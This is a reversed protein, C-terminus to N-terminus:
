ALTLSGDANVTILMPDDFKYSKKRRYLDYQGPSLRVELVGASNSTDSLLTLNEGRRTIDVGCYPIPQGGSSRITLPIMFGQNSSSNGAFVSVLDGAEYTFIGPDKELTIQKSAGVYSSVYGLCKRLSSGSDTIMVQAGAYANDDSSGDTLTFVTQSTLADIDTSVFLNASDGSGGGSTATGTFETGGAGYQNPALVISVGPVAFTGDTGSSVGYSATDIVEGQDPLHVLGSTGGGVGFTATDVVESSQPGHYTGDTLSSAGFSVTDLVSSASPLVVNGTLNDTPGFTVGDLVESEAPFTGGGSSQTSNNTVAQSTFDAMSNPSSASDTVNGGSYAVTVTETSLIARDVCLTIATSASRYASLISLAGGTGSLSFGTVETAPLLPASGAETLTVVVTTGGSPVQASSFTPATIDPAAQASNNTVSQSGFDAMSNPVSDTVNGGSYAVSVIESDYVTRSTTLTIETNGTRSASSVTLPSVYDTALSFGTIGSAPLLPVTEAETFQMVVTTGASPVQASAFTPPTTDPSPQASNNTVAQAGFDAMSNWASDTVNGSSYSVTVTESDYVTRNTTLTIETNGTRAASAVSLASGYSTSLSFGTVGTPPLLPVSDAETFQVVVSDGATPIASSLYVPAVSDPFGVEPSGASSFSAPSNSNNYRATRWAESRVVNHIRASDYRGDFLLTGDPRGGFAIRGDPGLSGSASTDDIIQSNDKYASLQTADSDYEAWLMQWDLVTLSGGAVFTVDPSYTRLAGSRSQIECYFGDAKTTSWFAAIIETGSFGNPYLWMEITYQNSIERAGFPGGTPNLKYIVNEGSHSPSHFRADANLWLTDSAHDYAPHEIDVPGRFSRITAGTSKNVEYVMDGTDTTAFLTNDTQNHSLGEITIGAADGTFTVASGIIAGTTKNFQTIEGSGTSSWIADDTFDYCLAQGSSTMAVTRDFTGDRDYVHKTASGSFQTIFFQDAVSDYALGQLQTEGETVVFSTIELGTTKSIEVVEDDDFNISALRDDGPIYCLGTNTFPQSSANNPTVFGSYQSRGIAPDTDLSNGGNKGATSTAVGLDEFLDRAGLVDKYEPPTDSPSEDFTYVHVHNGDYANESGYPDDSAPQSSTIKTKYWAYIVTDASTDLTPVKVNLAIDADGASDTSDAEWREVHVALQTTGDSNLSFRIDGGDSQAANGDTPSCMEDPLNSRVLLVTFDTSDSAGCLTRDITIAAKREWGLPFSM